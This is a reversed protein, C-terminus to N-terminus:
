QNRTLNLLGYRDLYKVKTKAYAFWLIHIQWIPCPKDNEYLRCRRIKNQYLECFSRLIGIRHIFIKDKWQIKTITGKNKM